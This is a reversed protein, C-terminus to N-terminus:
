HYFKLTFTNYAPDTGFTVREGDSDNLIFTVAPQLDPLASGPVTVPEGSVVEITSAFWKGAFWYRLTYNGTATAVIPLM